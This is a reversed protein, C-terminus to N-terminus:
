ITAHQGDRDTWVKIGETTGGFNPLNSMESFAKTIMTTMSGINEKSKAMGAKDLQTLAKTLNDLSTTNEGLSTKLAEIDADDKSLNGKATGATTNLKAIRAETDSRARTANSAQQRWSAERSLAMTYEPTKKRLGRPFDKNGMRHGETYMAPGWRKGYEPATGPERAYRGGMPNDKTIAEEIWTGGKANKEFAIREREYKERIKLANAENGKLRILDKNAKELDANTRDAMDQNVKRKNQAETLAQNIKDRESGTGAYQGQLNQLNGLQEDGASFATMPNGFGRRAAWNSRPRGPLNAGGGFGPGRGGGVGGGGVGGGGQAGIPLGTVPDIGGGGEKGADQWNAIFVKLNNKGDFSFRENQSYLDKLDKDPKILNKAQTRSIDELKRSSFIKSSADEGLMKNLFLRHNEKLQQTLPEVYANAPNNGGPDTLSRLMKLNAIMGSTKLDTGSEGLMNGQKYNLKNSEWDKFAKIPAGAAGGIGGAFSIQQALKLQATAAVKMAKAYDMEAKQKARMVTIERSTASTLDELAERHRKMNAVVIRNEAGGAPGKAMKIADAIAKDAGSLDANRIAEFFAPGFKKNIQNQFDKGMFGGKQPTLEETGRVKSLLHTELDSMLAEQKKVQLDNLENAHKMRLRREESAANFEILTRESATKSLNDVLTKTGLDFMKLTQEEFLKTLSKKLTIQNKLGKLNNKFKQIEDHLLSTEKALADEEDILGEEMTARRKLIPLLKGNIIMHLRMFDEEDLNVKQDMEKLSELLDKQEASLGKIGDLAAVVQRNYAQAEDQSINWEDELSEGSTKLNTFTNLLTKAKQQGVGDLMSAFGQAAKQMNEASTDNSYLMGQNQAFADLAMASSGAGQAMQNFRSAANKIAANLERIDEVSTNVDQIKSIVEAKTNLKDKGVTVGGSRKMTDGIGALNLSRIIDNKAAAVGGADGKSLAKGFASTAQSAKSMHENLNKFSEASKKAAEQVRKRAAAGKADYAGQMLKNVGVGVAAVALAIAVAPNAVVAAGAGRVAGGIAKGAGAMGGAIASRTWAIMAVVGAKVATGFATMAGLIGGYSATAMQIMPYYMAFSASLDLVSSSFTSVGNNTEKLKDSMVSLQSGVMMMGMSMAMSGEGGDGGGQAAIAKGKSTRMDPTGDAKLGSTADFNPVFGSAAGQRQISKMTEGSALHMNIANSLSGETTNYVGVGGRLRDDHGVRVQDRRVGARDERNIAAGLGGLAFNPIFGGAKTKKRSMLGTDAMASTYNTPRSILKEFEVTNRRLGDVIVERRMSGVMGKLQKLSSFKKEPGVEPMSFIGSTVMNPRMRHRLQPFAVKSMGEFSSMRDLLESKRKEPSQSPIGAWLQNVLQSSYIPKGTEQSINALEKFQKFGRGKENSQNMQIQLAETGALGSSRSHMKSSTYDMRGGSDGGIYKMGGYEGDDWRRLGPSLKNKNLTKALRMRQQEAWPNARPAMFNPVFGSAAGAKAANMAAIKKAKKQDTSLSGATWTSHKDSAAKGLGPLQRAFKRGLGGDDLLGETYAKNILSQKAEDTATRKADAKRLTKKFGFTTKFKGTAHAGEEFDFPAKFGGVADSIGSLQSPSSTAIKAVNEFIDGETGPSLFANKSKLATVLQSKKELRGQDGLISRLFLGALDVMPKAMHDSIKQSFRKTDETGKKPMKQLSKIQLGTFRISDNSLDNSKTLDSLAPIKNIPLQAHANNNEGAYFALLGVEGKTDYKHVNRPNKPGKGAKSEKINKQTGYSYGQNPAVHSPDLKGENIKRTITSQSMSGKGMISAGRSTLKLNAFNPVFGMAQLGSGDHGPIKEYRGNPFLWGGDMTKGQLGSRKVLDAHFMAKPDWHVGMNQDRVALHRGGAGRGKPLKQGIQYKIFNPVFGGASNYPDYGHVGRFSDRYNNGAASTRPPMIGPQQLGPFKKIEENGNYTVKGVGPITAQKIKGAQYGGAKALRREQVEQSYNPVFGSAAMNFSPIFGGAKKGGKGKGGTSKAGGQMALVAPAAKEAALTLKEMEARSEKLKAALVRAVAVMGEESSVAQNILAPRNALINQIVNQTSALKQSATEIGMFGAAADKVFVALKAGVKVLVFGLLALGPGGIIKGMGEYVATGVTEGLGFFNKPSILDAFGNIMKLIRDLAPKVTLAGVETAFKTLNVMTKNVMGETTSTLIAMRESAENTTENAVMLAKQYKGTENALEPLVAKLVNVQFVGALMESSTARLSPALSGYVKAYNELVKMAPLLEGSTKRVAVGLSELQRLTEPRQIRTFITKFSNGIVAGGRATKEQATTVISILEEFSVNASNAAAGTRKIAEALDGSSVAFKADVQAMKNVIQTSNGAAKGFTNIAATLSETANKVDMGGLKALTMAATTRKLSQEVNLGQRAFEEASEAVQYFSNGTAKAAKFLGNSFREFDKGTANLLVQINTLQQEVKITTKVLESMAKQVAFIAGASAGFAIVRANSAELSKNFENAAGTIRGLPQTFNKAVIPNKNFSQTKNFLSQLQMEAKRMEAAPVRIGIDITASNRAM